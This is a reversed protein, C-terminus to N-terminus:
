DGLYEAIYDLFQRNSKYVGEYPLEIYVQESEAYVFYRYRRAVTVVEITYYTKVAPYDNVSMARTPKAEAINKLIEGFDAADVALSSGGKEILTITAVSEIAPSSIPKAVPFIRDLVAYGGIVAVALLVIIIVLVTRKM